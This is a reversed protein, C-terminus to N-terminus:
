SQSVSITSTALLNSKEELDARIKEDSDQPSILSSLGLCFSRPAEDFGEETGERSPVYGGRQKDVDEISKARQRSGVIVVDSGTHGTKNTQSHPPTTIVPSEGWRAGPLDTSKTADFNEINPPMFGRHIRSPPVSSSVVEPPTVGSGGGNGQQLQQQHIQDKPTQNSSIHMPPLPGHRDGAGEGGGGGMHGAKEHNGGSGNAKPDDKRHSTPTSPATSWVGDGTISWM